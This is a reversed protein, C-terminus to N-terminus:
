SGFIGSATTFPEATVWASAEKAIWAPAQAIDLQIGPEDSGLPELIALQSDLLSLPMFHGPRSAMRDALLERTGHLHVFLTQPAASRILDRYSRKLASCAIVLPRDSSLLRRGVERLWPERDGDDLPISAAMKAVNAAPHLEDGDLFAGGVERALLAGVTSKGCGCVGMVVIHLTPDANNSGTM